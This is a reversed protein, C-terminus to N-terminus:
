DKIILKLFNKHKKLRYLDKKGFIIKLYEFFLIFISNEIAIWKLLFAYFGGYNKKFFYYMSKIFRGYVWWDNDARISEGGLHIVKCSTDIALEYKRNLRYSLDVDEFFLVFNDDMKGIEEYIVKKLLFFACPIQKVSVVKGSDIDITRDELYKSVLNESGSFIKSIVSYFLIYQMLTPYRQFYNYQFKGDRGILQPCIAGLNDNKELEVILKDFVSNQFTIDPNMILIYDGESIEVGM